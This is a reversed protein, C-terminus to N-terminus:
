KSATAKQLGGAIAEIVARSQLDNSPGADAYIRAAGAALDMWQPKEAPTWIKVIKAIDDSNVVTLMNERLGQAASHLFDGKHQADLQSVAADIVTSKALEWARATVVDLTQKLKPHDDFYATTSSCAPMFCALALSAVLLARFKHRM